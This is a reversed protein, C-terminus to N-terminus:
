HGNQHSDSDKKMRIRVKPLVVQLELIRDVRFMRNDKRLRCYAHMGWFQVGMFSEHNVTLPRVLRKTKVDNPKLYTIKVEQKNQIANRIIQVKKLLPFQKDSISYQLESLFNAVKPDSFISSPEIENALFVGELSTCRSLAVYAQGTTFAGNEMDIMLTDFTKGQSKHITVAWALIFPLQVFAGINKTEIKGDILSYRISDWTHRNVQVIQNNDNLRIQVITTSKEFEISHITGLSGNVWRKQSDNNVMMIQAGVKFRLETATPFSDEPFEGYIKAYSICENGTLNKLETHNAEESKKKTTTLRMFLRNKPLFCKSVVRENIRCIDDLDITNNSVRNLLSIFEQENQRYVKDLEFFEYIKSLECNSNCLAHASFFYPSEYVQRFALSIESPVVPPLQYLDGIFVMSVGGFKSEKIPGFKRLFTDICDLLDARVMSIEDIIIMTLRSYLSRKERNPTMKFIDNTTIGKKFGFFRHITQGGVNLSAVGTPALVVIKEEMRSRIREILTSKGTGARGTIFLIREDPRNFRHVIAEEARSFESNNDFKTSSFWNM